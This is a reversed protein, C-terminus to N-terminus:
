KLSYLCSSFRGPTSIVQGGKSMCHEEIKPNIIYLSAISLTIFILGLIIGYIPAQLDNNKM